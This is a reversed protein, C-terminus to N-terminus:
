MMYQIIIISNNLGGLALPLNLRITPDLRQVIYVFKKSLGHDDHHHSSYGEIDPKGALDNSNEGHSM